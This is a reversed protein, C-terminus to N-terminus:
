KIFIKCRIKSFLKTQLWCFRWDIYKAIGEINVALPNPDTSAIKRNLLNKEDDTLHEYWTPRIVFNEIRNLILNFISFSKNKQNKISNILNESINKTEPLYSFIAFYYKNVPIVSVTIIGYSKNEDYFREQDHSLLDGNMNYIPLFAGTAAFNPKNDIKFIFIKSDLSDWKDKLLYRDLKNKMFEFSALETELIKKGDQIKRDFAKSGKGHISQYNISTPLRTLTLKLKFLERCISRYTLMFLQKNSCIFEEDDLCKFLETDHAGCFGQFVTADNIGIKNIQFIKQMIHAKPIGYLQGKEAVKSLMSKKSLTHANVINSSCKSIDSCSCIKTNKLIKKDQKQLEHLEKPNHLGKINIKKM